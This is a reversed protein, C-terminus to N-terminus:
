FQHMTNLNTNDNINFRAFQMEQTHIFANKEKQNFEENLIFHMLSIYTHM